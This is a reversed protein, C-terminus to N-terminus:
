HLFPLLSKLLLVFAYIAWYNAWLFGQREKPEKLESFTLRAPILFTIAFYILCALM